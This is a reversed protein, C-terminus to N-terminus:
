FDSVTDMVSTALEVGNIWTNWGSGEKQPRVSVTLYARIGVLDEPKMSKLSELDTKYGLDELRSLRKRRANKIDRCGDADSEQFESRNAVRYMESIDEGYYIGENLVFWEIIHYRRGDKKAKIIESKTIKCLYTNDVLREPVLGELDDALSEFDEDSM